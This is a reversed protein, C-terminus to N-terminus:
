AEADASSRGAKTANSVVAQGAATAMEAMSMQGIREILRAKLAAEHAAKEADALRTFPVRFMEDEPLQRLLAEVAHWGTPANLMLAVHFSRGPGNDCHHWYGGPMFLLDGPKLTEDFLPATEPPTQAPMGKIPYTVPPGYIRWRKSGELQLVIIDVLDFHLTIAGGAGTTMVADARTVEGTRATIDACLTKLGPIHSQIPDTVVSVGQAILSALNAANVKGKEIYFLEPVKHTRHTLRYKRPPIVGSEILGRLTNWDLLGEFRSGGSSRRFSLTRNRLLEFFDREGLPAILEQLTSIM